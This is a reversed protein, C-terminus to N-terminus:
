ADGAAALVRTTAERATVARAVPDLEQRLRDSMVEVSLPCRPPLAAVFDHLPLAGHGPLLRARRAEVGLGEDSDDPAGAPADCIQAYPLLRPALGAVDAPTEGCRALHLADVLVGLDDRGTAEIVATAEALSRVTTFRMFELVPVVSRRAAREALAALSEATRGPEPDLSITLLHAAGVEGAFDVLRANWDDHRGDGTLRAYEVDLVEIGRTRLRERIRPATGADPGPARFRIGVAGYGADAAVDVLVVPSTVDLVTGAALSLLRGTV